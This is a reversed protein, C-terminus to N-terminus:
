RAVTLSILWDSRAAYTERRRVTSSRSPRSIRASLSPFYLRSSAIWESITGIRVSDLSSAESPDFRHIM